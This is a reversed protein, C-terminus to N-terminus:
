RRLADLDLELSQEDGSPAAAPRQASRSSLRPDLLPQVSPSPSAPSPAPRASEAPSVPRTQPRRGEPPSVPGGEQAPARRSPEAPQRPMPTAAGARPGSLAGSPASSPRREPSATAIESDRQVLHVVEDPTTMGRVLLAGAYRALSYLATSAEASRRLAVVDGGSVIAQRLSDSVTLLEFIAVRGKFGTGGCRACGRGRVLVARDEARLALAHVLRDTLMTPYDFPEACGSCVRRVLRQHLVALLSNAVAYDEVGLDALRTVAELAGNTHVSTLVLHGTMSAEVAIKATERDRTEGILIIDPDQRLLGRLISAFTTGIEPRVQIQTVGDLHYEIPDEVTCVNLEPRLRASLASYLTTTKGSGTPGTILILGNPRFLLEAFPVRLADVHFVSKLDSVAGETDLVRLVVKEGLKAPVTSIRLDVIRKGVRVSIRGDAPRRTETIDLKALLKFRSVLPRALEPPLLGPRARLAGDVRYRVVVGRRDHEVHIDSAGLGLGTSVIEDVLAVIQQGSVALHTARSPEDDEVFSVVPRGDSGVPARERTTAAEVYQRFETASVAFVRVAFGPLSRQLAALAATNHPDVMGVTLVRGRLELPVIHQQTSLTEPILTWLKRDFARGSLTVWEVKPESAFRRLREALIRATASVVSPASGALLNFTDRDLRFLTADELASYTHIRPKGTVIEVEGFTEGAGLEGVLRRPQGESAAFLGVLGREIIYIGDGPEGSPAIDTDSRYDHRTLRSAAEELAAGSLGRFLPTRSLLDVAQM